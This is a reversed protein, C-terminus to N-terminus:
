EARLVWGKPDIQVNAEPGVDLQGSQNEMDVRYTREGVAVPVPMEFASGGTNTWRLNLLGDTRETELVPLAQQYLYVEFFCDLSRGSVEEALEVFQDTTVSRFPPVTNDATGKPYVFRKLVDRIAEEGVLYRLSHLLQAGRFYVDGHYISQATTPAKRAISRGGEIQARQYDTVAHYASDGRLAEAYLAELYTATGEHLWFDNWDRVTVLNGYWEHALEHFHLADFPADYGLGGPGFDHGYAIISQHEMGLFPVQAIGYKDQRFPYPGLTEELFRVHDLFRPLSAEARAEDKPLAYFSVPVTEGSTSTYSTDIRTYPAVNLAVTYTNIPTSVHWRYTQTSDTTQEVSQLVGNSAAVLSDPVTVAIDMSDPEDSPHDKVPWWLDAGGTQCSTAIWPAGSNTEAWTLGGEWPARPAVRPSGVYEVTVDISDGPRHPKGLRIWLQDGEARREVEYREPTNSGESWVRRVTLRHDLDLVLVDLPKKVVAHVRLRGELRKRVPDPEVALNYYTVDYAAQEALLSGGSDQSREQSFCRGIFGVTLILLVVSLSRLHIM